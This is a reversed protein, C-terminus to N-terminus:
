HLELCLVAAAVRQPMETPARGLENTLVSVGWPLIQERRAHRGPEPHGAQACLTHPILLYNLGGSSFTVAAPSHM